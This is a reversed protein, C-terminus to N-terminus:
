PQRILAECEERFHRLTSLLPDSATKGLACLSAAGAVEAIEEMLEVDGKRGRGESVRTVVKLLQRVGERCPVCKGRSEESLFATQNTLGFRGSALTCVRVFINSSELARVENVSTM